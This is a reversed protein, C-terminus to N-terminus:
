VDVRLSVFGLALSGAVLSRWGRSGFCIYSVPLAVYCGEIKIEMIDSFLKNEKYTMTRM